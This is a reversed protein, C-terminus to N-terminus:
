YSAVWEPLCNGAVCLKWNFIDQSTLCVLAFALLVSFLSFSLLYSAPPAPSALVCLSTCEGTAQPSYLQNNMFTRPTYTIDALASCCLLTCRIQRSPHLPSRIPYRATTM